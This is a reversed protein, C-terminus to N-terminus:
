RILTRPRKKAEQLAIGLIEREERDYLAMGPVEMRIRHEKVLHSESRYHSLLELTGRSMLSLEVKCVRCWWKYPNKDKDIPGNASFKLVPHKKLMTGTLSYKPRRRKGGLVPNDVRPTNLSPIPPVFIGADDQSSTMMHPVESEDIIALRLPQSVEAEEGMVYEQSIRELVRTLALIERRTINFSSTGTNGDNEQVEMTSTNLPIDQGIMTSNGANPTISSTRPLSAENPGSVFQSARPSIFEELIERSIDDLSSDM